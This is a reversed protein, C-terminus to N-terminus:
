IPEILGILVRIVSMSTGLIEQDLHIRKHSSTFKASIELVIEKRKTIILSEPTKESRKIDSGM